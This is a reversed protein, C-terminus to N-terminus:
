NKRTKKAYSSQKKLSSYSLIKTLDSKKLSKIRFAIEKKLGKKLFVKLFDGKKLKEELIMQAIPEEIRKQIARRLSRVGEKSNYGKKVLNSIIENEVELFAEKSKQIRTKLKEIEKEAIQFMDAEGLPNFYIIDSLRSLFEPTLFDQLKKKVKKKAYDPFQNKKSRDKAGFGIPKSAFEENGLNSTFLILTNKFNIKRGSSDTLFGDELVQLLLHFIEPHAKEIEDFLILTYPNKRIRDSFYNKEGHGVYGPPSGLLKSVTHKESFESMDIRLISDEKLFLEKALIKALYTKGSGIPGVLVFATSPREPDSIGSFKRKLNSVITEIAKDQGKIEKKLVEQIKKLREGFSAMLLERPINIRLSLVQCVDNESLVPVLSREEKIKQSIKTIKDDLEREKKLISYAIDFNNNEVMSKKEFLLKEKEFLLKQLNFFSGKKYEDQVVFAATEDLLDLAKDPFFRDSIFKDSLEVTKEIAKDTIRVQHYNELYAKLGKLIKETQRLSPEKIWIPQFRRELAGDKEIYRHYEEATTAGICRLKGRALSPKLINAADLSGQSSGAGIINHIEDIFLIVQPDNEAEDLIKRLRDEFEGRFSTGAILLSLDLSMIRKGVLNEPVERKIIKQALGSIIATKGIGPEGVLVPNNKNKRMLIRILSDIEKDRGIIPDNKGQLIEANLNYAFYDLFKKKTEGSRDLIGFSPRMLHKNIGMRDEEDKKEMFEQIMGGIEYVMEQLNEQSLEKSEKQNKKKSKGKELFFNKEPLVLLPDKTIDASKTLIKELQLIMESSNIKYQSLFDQTERDLNKLISYLLHETGVYPFQFFHAWKLSEFIVRQSELSFNNKSKIKLNKQNGTKKITKFIPLFSSSVSGRESSLALLIHRPAVLNEGGSLAEKKAKKLVNLSHSTFYREIIRLM